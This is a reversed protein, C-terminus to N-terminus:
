ITFLVIAILACLIGLWQTRSLQERLIIWALLVTAGPYLSSLVSAVDLRGSPGALIFFLNGGVDLLGNLGIVPWAERKVIWSDRRLLVFGAMVAMGAGRSAVMPWLVSQRTAAHMFVFYAGFGLGAILPLRLDSLHTLINKFDNGGNSILWVAALAFIFGLATLPRALGESLSGVLVPLVAALLASVPAAISMKGSAMAQYLLLLGSTGLAGAVISYIWAFPSPISQPLSWATLFILILGIVEGYLVARYAGTKRAALGGTFDGAGWSLAAALGFLISIM